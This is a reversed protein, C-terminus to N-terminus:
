QQKADTQLGLRSRTKKFATFFVLLDILHNCFKFENGMKM